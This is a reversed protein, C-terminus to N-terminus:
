RRRSRGRIVPVMAVIRADFLFTTRRGHPVPSGPWSTSSVQRFFYRLQQSLPEISVDPVRIRGLLFLLVEHTCRSQFESLYTSRESSFGELAKASPALLDAVPEDVGSSTLQGFDVSLGLGLGLEPPLQTGRGIKRKLRHWQVASRVPILWTRLRM